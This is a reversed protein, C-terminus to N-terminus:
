FPWYWRPPTRIVVQMVDGYIFTQLKSNTLARLGLIPLRPWNGEYVAIGDVVNIRFPADSMHLWLAARRLQIKEGQERIRKTPSLSGAALGAWVSLQSETIAFNHNNGTDLIAPFRPTKADWDQISELTVSVWVVIQYAKVDIIKDAFSVHTKRAHYSLQLKV